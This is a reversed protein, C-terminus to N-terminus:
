RPSGSIGAFSVTDNCHEAMSTLPLSDSNRFYSFGTTCNSGSSFALGGIITATPAGFDAVSRMELKGERFLEQASVGVEQLILEERAQVLQSQLSALEALGQVRQATVADLDTRLQALQQRLADREAYGFGAVFGRLEELETELAKKSGFLGGRAQSPPEAM